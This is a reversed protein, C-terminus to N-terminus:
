VSVVRLPILTGSEQIAQTASMNVEEPLMEGKRKTSPYDRYDIHRGTPNGPNRTREGEM